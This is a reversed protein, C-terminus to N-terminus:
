WSRASPPPCRRCGCRSRPASRTPLQGSAQDQHARRAPPPKEVVDMRGLLKIRSTMANMVGLPVQYVTHLVGDIRFRIAGMDRRPELHIDSARQDFAYQWLWDVVQVVGADNADLQKATKGLEVLQEFSAAPSVEGSKQAARVSKALAYFETTYKRVDQPQALVLKVSRRVHAEIEPVWGVDFPEATAIVVEHATIQVPLACRSEAYHVSMVDAVRGVDAKLPDIRLYPMQCRRALWVTLAETDLPAATGARQLGAAGLRVLAHQSSSGAGFRRTVRESDEASILKDDRLWGLLARWDLKGQWPQHPLVLTDGAPRAARQAATTSHM